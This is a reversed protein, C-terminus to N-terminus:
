RAKMERWPQPQATNPLPVARLVARVQSSSKHVTTADRPGAPSWLWSRESHQLSSKLSPEGELQQPNDGALIPGKKSYCHHYCVQNQCLCIPSLAGKQSSPSHHHIQSHTHGCVHSHTPTCAHRALFVLPQSSCYFNIKTTHNPPPPIAFKMLRWRVDAVATALFIHWSKFPTLLDSYLCEPSNQFSKQLNTDLHPKAYFTIVFVWGTDDCSQFWQLSNNRCQANAREPSPYRKLAKFREAAGQKRLFALNGYGRLM